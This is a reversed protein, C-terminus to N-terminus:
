LRAPRPPDIPADGLAIWALGHADRAPWSPVPRGRTAVLDDPLGPIAVCQGAADFRWGHYGCEVASGAVRGASLPANRHPCRDELAALTGDAARALALHH